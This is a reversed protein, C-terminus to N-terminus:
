SLSRSLKYTLFKTIYFENRVLREENSIYTDDSWNKTLFIKITSAALKKVIEGCSSDFIVKLFNLYFNRNKEYQSIITYGSKLLKADRSMNLLISELTEYEVVGKLNSYDQVQEVQITGEPNENSSM